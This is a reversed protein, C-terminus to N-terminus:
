VCGPEYGKEAADLSTKFCILNKESIRKAWRCSCLHFKNSNVSGAYKSGEPCGLLECPDAALQDAYTIMEGSWVGLNQEKAKEEAKAIIEEHEEGPKYPFARAYGEEILVLNVFTNEVFVYRLLRGYKDREDLGQTLRVQKGATLEHLRDQAEKSYFEGKEPTDIGILRVREGDSLELTDGDIARLVLITEQASRFYLGALIIIFVLVYRKM